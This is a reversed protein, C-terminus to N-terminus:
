KIMCGSSRFKGPTKGNRQKFIKIFHSESSFCLITSIESVSYDTYLLMSKATDIKEQQVYAMPSHGTEEHFLHSFRCVSLGSAAALDKLTIKNQLHSQIYNIAKRVAHSYLPSLKQHKVAGSFDRVARNQLKHIQEVCTCSESTQIYSDSMAYALNEPVGADMAARTIQTIFSIMLIQAQRLPNKSLTGAKGTHEMLHLREVALHVDGMRVAELMKKEYLYPTHPIFAERSELLIKRTKKDLFDFSDTNYIEM